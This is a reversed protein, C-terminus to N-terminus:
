RHQELNVYFHLLQNIELKFIFEVINELIM